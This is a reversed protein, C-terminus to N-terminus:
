VKLLRKTDLLRSVMNGEAGLQRPLMFSPMNDGDERSRKTLRGNAAGGHTQGILVGWSMIVVYELYVQVEM